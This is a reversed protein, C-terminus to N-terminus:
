DDGFYHQLLIQLRKRAAHMTAHVNQTEIELLEAVENPTMAQWVVLSFVERQRHPLQRVANRIAQQQEDDLLRQTPDNRESSQSRPHTELEEAPLVSFRDTRRGDAAIVDRVCHIM